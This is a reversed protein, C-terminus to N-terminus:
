LATVSTMGGDVTLHTGTIFSAEDSLLFRIPGAIEEPSAVRALPTAEEIRERFGPLEFAPALMPTAVAGPCVANVRFGEVAFRQGVSRTVGLIGAKSACYAALLASGFHGEISSVLVAASGPGAERFPVLVSRALVVAARLNVDLTRDWTDVDLDDLAMAGPVGAAHVLGGLSGLATAALPVGGSVAGPDAVDVVAWEATVGYRDHCLSATEEAGEADLDWVAVPRGVEALALASARGIGSAGGTVLVGTGPSGLRDARVPVRKARVSRETSRLGDSGRRAPVTPTSTKSARPARKAPARKAPSPKAPNRRAPSPKAPTRTASRVPGAADSRTAANARARPTM